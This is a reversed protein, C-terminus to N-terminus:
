KPWSDDIRKLATMEDIKGSIWDTMSSWFTGNGVPSPMQDSGDFKLITAEGMLRAVTRDVESGYWSPDADKQPAIVGGEAMWAKLHEGKAFYEMVARIEPRDRFMGWIDGGVLFPKGHAPDIPPLYFVGYDVGMKAGAPFFGAAFNGQKMLWCGPPDQIMPDAAQYFPATVITKVGGYVYQPNLWIKAMIDAAQKVEPSQFKLQGTIWRDYNEPSTTRLLIDEIWDTAIWGTAAGSEMAICWPKSGTGAIQDTLAMLEDWTTPIKYGAQDFAKKPYFVISKGNASEWVGAMIPKGDKGPMTAMDLWSQNYNAQLAKPDMFSNLDIVSGSAAYSKLYGPQPFDVIDPVDGSDIRSALTGRFDLVGDYQIQIGTRDMFDKMYLLFNQVDNETRPGLAIVKTGKFAGAFARDLETAGGSSLPVVSTTAPTVLPAPITATPIVVTADPIKAPTAPLNAVGSIPTPQNFDNSAPRFLGLATAFV